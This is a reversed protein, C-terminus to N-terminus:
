RAACYLVIRHLELQVYTSHIRFPTDGLTGVASIIEGRGLPRSAAAVLVSETRAIGVLQKKARLYYPVIHSPVKSGSEPDETITATSKLLSYLPLSPLPPPLLLSPLIGIDINIITDSVYSLESPKSTPTRIM